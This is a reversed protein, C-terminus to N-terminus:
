MEMSELVEILRYVAIVPDRGEVIDILGDSSDDLALDAEDENRIAYTGDNRLGMTVTVKGSVRIHLLEGTVKDTRHLINAYTLTGDKAAKWDVPMVERLVESAKKEM